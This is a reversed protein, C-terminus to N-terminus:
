ESLRKITEDKMHSSKSSGFFFQMVMIAGAFLYIDAFMEVLRRNDEPVDVFFLMTGFATASAIVFSSLYYLYRKSFKDDQALAAIQMARANALDEMYDRRENQEYEFILRDFEQKQAETISSGRVASTLISVVPFHDDVKDLVEPLTDKLWKGVKTDKFPKGKMRAAM